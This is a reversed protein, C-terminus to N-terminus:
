TAMHSVDDALHGQNAEFYLPTKLSFSATGRPPASSKGAVEIQSPSLSLILGTFVIAKLPWTCHKWVM